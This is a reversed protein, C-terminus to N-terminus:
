NEEYNAQHDTYNGIHIQLFISRVILLTLLSIDFFGSFCPAFVMPAAMVMPAPSPTDNPM